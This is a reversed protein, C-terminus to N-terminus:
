ILETQFPEKAKKQFSRPKEFYSKLKNRLLQQKLGPINQFYEQKEESTLYGKTKINQYAQLLDRDEAKHFSILLQKFEDESVEQYGDKIFFIKYIKCLATREAHLGTLTILADVESPSLDSSNLSKKAQEKRLEGVFTDTNTFELDDNQQQDTLIHEFEVLIKNVDDCIDKLCNGENEILKRINIITISSADTDEPHQIRNRLFQLEEYPIKNFKSKVSESLNKATEGVIEIIRLAVARHEYKSLDLTTLTERCSLSEQLYNHDLYPDTIQKLVSLSFIASPDTNAGRRGEIIGKLAGEFHELEMFLHPNGLLISHDVKAATYNLAKALPTLIRWVEESIYKKVLPASYKVTDSLEMTLWSLKKLYIILHDLDQESLRIQSVIGNRKKIEGIGKLATLMSSFRQIDNTIISLQHEPYPRINESASRKAIKRGFFM